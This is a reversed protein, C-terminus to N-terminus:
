SAASAGITQAIWDRSPDFATYVGPTGDRACGIGWSVLVIQTSTGDYDYLVLPGGSDGSCADVLGGGACLIGEEPWAADAASFATGEPAAAELDAKCQETDVIEVEGYQLALSPAFVGRGRANLGGVLDSQESLNGYGAVLAYQGVPPSSGPGGLADLTMFPGEYGAEIEVLALDNGLDFRGPVYDPHIHIATVAWTETSADDSLHERGLAVRMPGRQETSGDASRGYQVARGNGEIKAQDVCHAATLVFREAIATGGCQHMATRGDMYQLSAIGPWDTIDADQGGAVCASAAVVLGLTAAQKVKIELTM